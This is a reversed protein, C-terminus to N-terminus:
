AVNISSVSHPFASAKQTGAGASSWQFGWVSICVCTLIAFLCPGAEVWAGHSVYLWPPVHPVPSPSSWWPAGWVSMQAPLQTARCCAMRTGPTLAGWTSPSRLHSKVSCCPSAMHSCPPPLPCHPRGAHHRSGSAGPPDRGREASTFNFTRETRPRHWRGSM